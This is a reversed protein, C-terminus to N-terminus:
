PLRKEDDDDDIKNIKKYHEIIRPWDSLTARAVSILSTGDSYQYIIHGEQDKLMIWYHGPESHIDLVLGLM